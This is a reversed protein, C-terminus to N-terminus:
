YTWDEEDSDVWFVKSVVIEGLGLVEDEERYASFPDIDYLGGPGTVFSHPNDATKAVFVVAFQGRGLGEEGVAFETATGWDGTWSTAGGTRPRMVYKKLSAKGSHTPKKGILRELYAGPVRLGRYVEAEQPPAFIKSYKGDRLFGKLLEATEPKLHVNSDFHKQLAKLLADEKRTNPEYPVKDRREPAFAIQGLPDGPEGEAVEPPIPDAKKASTKFHPLCTVIDKIRLNRLLYGHKSFSAEAEAARTLNDAFRKPGLSQLSEVYEQLEYMLLYRKGAAAAVRHSISDATMSDPDLKLLMKVAAPNDKITKAAQAVLDRDIEENSVGVQYPDPPPLKKKAESLLRSIVRATIAEQSAM